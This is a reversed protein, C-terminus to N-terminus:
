SEADDAPTPRRRSPLALFVAGIVWRMVNVSMVWLISFAVLAAADAKSEFLLQWAAQSTGMRGPTPIASILGVMPGFVLLDSFDLHIGSAMLGLWSFACWAVAQVARFGVIVGYDSHRARSVALAAGESLRSRLPNQWRRSWFIFHAIVLPWCVM